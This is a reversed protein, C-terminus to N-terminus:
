WEGPALIAVAVYPERSGTQKWMSQGLFRDDDYIPAVHPTGNRTHVVKTGLGFKIADNLAKQVNDCDVMRNLYWWYRVVILGEGTKPNFPGPNWGNPKARQTAHMAILQYEEVGRAKRRGMYRNGAGDFRYSQEYLHNMSPPQGPVLFEIM